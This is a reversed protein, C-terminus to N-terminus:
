QPDRPGGGGETLSVTALEYVVIAIANSPAARLVGRVFHRLLKSVSPLQQSMSAEAGKLRKEVRQKGGARENGVSSM